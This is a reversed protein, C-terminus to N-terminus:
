VAQIKLMVQATMCVIYVVSSLVVSWRSSVLILGEEWANATMKGAYGKGVIYQSDHGDSM